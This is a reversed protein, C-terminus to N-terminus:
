RAGLARPRGPDPRPRAMTAWTARSSPPFTVTCRAFPPPARNRKVRGSTSDGLAEFPGIRVHRLSGAPAAHSTFRAQPAHCRGPAPRSADGTSMPDRILFRRFRMRLFFCLFISFAVRQCRRAAPLYDPVGRDSRVAEQTWARRPRSRRWCAGNPVSKYGAAGAQQITPIEAVPGEVFWTSGSGALQPHRGSAAALAEKWELLRPELRVAAAELDNTSAPESGGHRESALEDWTKYVASTDMGFPPVLLSFTRELHPLPEVMEGIGSVRAAAGPSVSRSTRVSHRPWNSTPGGLGGSCRQRTRRDAGSDPVPLSGNSWGSRRVCASRRSRVGSSTTLTSRSRTGRGTLSRTPRAARTPLAAGAARALRAATAAPAM